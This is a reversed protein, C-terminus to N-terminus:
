MQELRPLIIHLADQDSAFLHADGIQDLLGTTRMIEM